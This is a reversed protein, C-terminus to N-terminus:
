SHSEWECSVNALAIAAHQMSQDDSTPAPAPAPSQGEVSPSFIAFMLFGVALVAIFSKSSACVAM